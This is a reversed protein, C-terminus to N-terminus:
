SFYCPYFYAKGIPNSPYDELNSVWADFNTSTYGWCWPYVEEILRQQIKDYLHERKLDDTELLAEEMWEQVKWDNVQAGNSAATRNTFLPNIFNSPDNYDPLWGIWYLELNNQSYGPYDLLNLVFELFTTGKDEVNIGIEGLNDQLLVLVDERMDNGINYMYEYSIFSAGEWNSEDPGDVTTNWGVGYGADQMYGRARSVNYNPVDFSYNSWRAGAPIPSKLREAYGDLLEETIYSYNLAYSIAKRLTVNIKVNNMGLYQTATGSHGADVLDVSTSSNFESFRDTDPSLLIDVDGALLASSRADTDTIIDFVLYRFRAPGRWYNNYAEFLVEVGPEYSLYNFPGTGILDDTALNLIETKSISPSDNPLIYSACFTLLDPFAGYETNLEFAVTDYDIKHTTNIINVYSGNYVRYLGTTANVEGVTYKAELDSMQSANYWSLNYVQSGEIDWYQYLEGAAAMGQSMLYALREFTWVVDDANFVSGDHFTINKVAGSFSNAVYTTKLDVTYNVHGESDPTGFTGLSKALQPMIPTDPDSLNYAYLGECVQEIVDISASDWSDMTDLHGPGEMTGLILTNTRPAELQIFGSQLALYINGVGSAVLLVTVLVLAWEPKTFNRVAKM